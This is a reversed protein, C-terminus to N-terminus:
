NNFRFIESNIVEHFTTYELHPINREKCYKLLKSKAFLYDVKEAPCYDSVGDGIYYVNKYLKKFNRIFNCKCTGAKRKCLSNMYPFTMEFKGNKFKLSNSYIEIGFIENRELVQRVFYEFGDSVIVVKLNNKKSLEYFTKFYKDIQVSNFFDSIKQETMDKILAFQSQMAECTSIKGDIWDQEFDLWKEDAFRDLFDNICDVKTITGDFDCVVINEM